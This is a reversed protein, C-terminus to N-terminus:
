LARGLLQEIRLVPQWSPLGDKWISAATSFRGERVAGILQDEDFPGHSQGKDHVHWAVATAPAEPVEELVDVADEAAQAPAAHHAAARPPDDALQLHDSPEEEHTPIAEQHAAPAAPAPAEPAAAVAATAATKRAALGPRARLAFCSKCIVTGNEDYVDEVGYFRQCTACQFDVEPDGTPRARRDALKADYCLQCYYNGQPDKVRKISSVDISCIVCVKASPM